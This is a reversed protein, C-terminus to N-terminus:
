DLSEAETGSKGARARFDPNRQELWKMKAGSPGNQYIALPDALFSKPSMPFNFPLATHTLASMGFRLPSRATSPARSSITHVGLLPVPPEFGGREAMGVLRIQEFEIGDTEKPKPSPKPNGAKLAAEGTRWAYAHRLHRHQSRAHFLRSAISWFTM